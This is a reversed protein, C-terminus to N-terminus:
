RHLFFSIVSEAEVKFGYGRMRNMFEEASVKGDPDDHLELAIAGIRQWTEAPTDRLLEFEAGEIDIKALAVPGPLAAIVDAFGRIQVSFRDGGQAYLGSGGPNDRDFVWETVRSTGAVAEKRLQIRDSLGANALCNMEFMRYNPPGPEYTFVRARPNAEAALLSFLGINGGLDLVIPEGPQDKLFRFARAYGGAFLLEHVVDWDRTDRRCIVNLGSRFSLMRLGPRNRRLRLDFGTPWNEIRRTIEWATKIKNRRYEAM